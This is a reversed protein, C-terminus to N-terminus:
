PGGLFIVLGSLTPDTMGPPVCKFYAPGPYANPGDASAAFAHSVGAPSVTVTDFLVDAGGPQKVYILYAATDTPATDWYGGSNAESFSGATPLYGPLPPEGNLLPGAFAFSLGIAAPAGAPGKDGAAVEVADGNAWITVTM